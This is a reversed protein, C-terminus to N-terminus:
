WQDDDFALASSAGNTIANTLWSVRALHHEAFFQCANLKAELFPRNGEGEALLRCAALAARALMWGGCVLGWAESTHCPEPM